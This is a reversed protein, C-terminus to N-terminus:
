HLVTLGVLVSITGIWLTSCGLRDNYNIASDVTKNFNEPHNAPKPKDTSKPLDRM